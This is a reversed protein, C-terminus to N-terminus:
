VLEISMARLIWYKRRRAICVKFPSRKAQISLMLKQAMFTHVTKCKWKSQLLLYCWKLIWRNKHSELSCSSTWCCLTEQKTTKRTTITERLWYIIPKCFESIIKSQWWHSATNAHSSANRAFICSDHLINSTNSTNSTYWTLYKVKCNHM